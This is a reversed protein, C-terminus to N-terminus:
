CGLFCACAELRALWPHLLVGALQMSRVGRHAAFGHHRAVAGHVSGVVVFGGLQATANRLRLKKSSALRTEGSGPWNGLRIQVFNLQIRTSKPASIRDLGAPGSISCIHGRIEVLPPGFQDLEVGVNGRFRSWIQPVSDIASPRQEALNSWCPDPISWLQGFIIGFGTSNPGFSAFCPM